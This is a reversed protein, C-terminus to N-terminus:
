DAPPPVINFFNKTKPLHLRNSEVTHKGEERHLFDKKHTEITAKKKPPRGAALDLSASLLCRSPLRQFPGKEHRGRRRRQTGSLGSRRRRGREGGDSTSVHPGPRAAEGKLFYIRRPSVRPSPDRSVVSPLSPFHSRGVRFSQFSSPRPPPPNPRPGARGYNEKQVKGVETHSPPFVHLFLTKQSTSPFPLCTRRRVLSVSKMAGGKKGQCTIIGLTPRSEEEKTARPFPTHPPSSSVTCALIPRDKRRRWASRNNDNDKETKAPFRPRLHLPLFFLLLLFAEEAM